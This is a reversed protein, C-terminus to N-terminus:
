HLLGQEVQSVLICTHEHGADFKPLVVKANRVLLFRQGLHSFLHVVLPEHKVVSLFFIFGFLGTEQLLSCCCLCNMLLDNGLVVVEHGMNGELVMLIVVLAPQPVDESLPSREGFALSM